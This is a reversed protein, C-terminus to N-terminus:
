KKSQSGGRGFLNGRPATKGSAMRGKETVGQNGFTRGERHVALQGTNANRLLRARAEPPALPLSKDYTPCANSLHGPKGCSWCKKAEAASGAVGEPPVFQGEKVVFIGTMAPPLYRADMTMDDSGELAVYVGDERQAENDDSGENCTCEGSHDCAGEDEEQAWAVAQTQVMRSPVRIGRKAALEALMPIAVFTGKMLEWFELFTLTGARVDTALRMTANDMVIQYTSDNLNSMIALILQYETDGDLRDKSGGAAQRSLLAVFNARVREYFRDAPMDGQKQSELATRAPDLGDAYLCRHCELMFASWTRREYLRMWGALVNRLAQTGQTGEMSTAVRHML